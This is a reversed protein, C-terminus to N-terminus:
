SVCLLFDTYTLPLFGYRDNLDQGNHGSRFATRIINGMCMTGERSDNDYLVARAVVSFCPGNTRLLVHMHLSHGDVFSNAQHIRLVFLPLLLTIVFCLFHTSTAPPIFVFLCSFSRLNGNGVNEGNDTLSGPIENKLNFLGVLM